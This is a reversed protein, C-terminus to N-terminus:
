DNQNKLMHPKGAGMLNPRQKPLRGIPKATNSEGGFSTKSSNAMIRFDRASGRMTSEAYPLDQIGSKMLNNQAPKPIGGRDVKPMEKM